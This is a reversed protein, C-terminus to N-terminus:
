TGISIEEVAVTYALTTGTLKIIAQEAELVRSNQLTDQAVIGM